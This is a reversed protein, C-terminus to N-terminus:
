RGEWILGYLLAAVSLLGAANRWPFLDVGPLMVLDVAVLVNNVTLGAFCVASWLLLRTRSRRYARFLLVTCALAAVACLLYVAVAVTL